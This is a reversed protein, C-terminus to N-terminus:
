GSKRGGFIALESIKRIVAFQHDAGPIAGRVGDLFATPLEKTQWASKSASM